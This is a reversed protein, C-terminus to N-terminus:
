GPAGPHHSQKAAYRRARQPASHTQQRSPKEDGHEGRQVDPRCHFRSPLTLGIEGQDGDAPRDDAQEHEPQRKGHETRAGTRPPHRLSQGGLQAGALLLERTGDFAGAGPEPVPLHLASARHEVFAPGLDDAVRQGLEGRGGDLSPSAEGMGLIQLAGVLKEFRMEGPVQVDVGTLRAHAVLVAVPDPHQVAALDRLPATVPARWAEWDYTFDAVTRYQEESERLSDEARKRASVDLHTGIMRLPRGDSDWESVKGRDLVWVWHGDKHRMRAECEYIPAQRSFHQELLAGSRQLDDPDCLSTWTDISLPALEALTYGVIEAWRENFVAEGSHVHWDWLGVGSGEVARALQEESRLLAEEARKRASIDTFTVWFSLTEGDAGRRPQGEIRAWFPGAGVRQLRLERSQPAETKELKRLHLYYADRDAAIVFASFPQGVLMQREVGLLRAATFNADGVIGKDGITLYGVPARDFLAFYKARQADLELQARRLEENQMELEIQHVRLEHVAAALDEPAPSAAAAAAAAASLGDLREEAQRRLEAAADPAAQKKRPQRPGAM